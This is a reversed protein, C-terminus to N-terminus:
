LWLPNPDAQPSPALKIWRNQFSFFIVGDESCVPSSCCWKDMHTDASMVVALQRPHPLFQAAGLGSTRIALPNEVLQKLIGSSLHINPSVATASGSPSRLTGHM